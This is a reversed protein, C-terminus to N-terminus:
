QLSGLLNRGEFGDPGEKVPFGPQQIVALEILPQLAVVRVGFEPHRRPVDVVLQRLIGLVLDGQDVVVVAAADLVPHEPDLGVPRRGGGERLRAGPWLMVSM